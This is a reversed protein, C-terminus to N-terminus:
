QIGLNGNGEDNVVALCDCRSSARSRLHEIFMGPVKVGCKDFVATEVKCPGDTGRKLRVGAMNRGPQCVRPLDHTITARGSDGNSRHCIGEADVGHVKSASEPAIKMKRRGFVDASASNPTRPLQENSGPKSEGLNGDLHPKGILAMERM